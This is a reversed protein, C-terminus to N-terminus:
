LLECEVCAEPESGRWVKKIKLGSKALLKSWQTENREMGGIPFMSLDMIANQMTVNDDPLVLDVLLLKSKPQEKLVPVLQGLFLTVDEDNWDHIIHRYYYIAADKVPQPKFIDHAMFEVGKPPAPVADFSSQLDQVIFRGKVEPNRTIIEEMIHGQGGAIDVIAVDEPKLNLKQLEEGFPYADGSVNGANHSRMGAVMNM